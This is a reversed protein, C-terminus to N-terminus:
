LINVRVEVEMEAKVKGAALFSGSVPPIVEPHRHVAVAIHDGGVAQGSTSDFGRWGTGPLYIESWAHTTALDEVAANSVLYGSVFRSALGLYRCAEIFLTAMDRCSGKGRRLTTHPPQVGPSTRVTYRVTDAIKQNIRNLLPVTEVLDGASWVDKMWEGIVAYDQPFVSIQYPILDIQELPDYHFPYHRANAALDIPSPMEEYHQVVVRSVIELERGPESFGVIALSNGFIDRQWEISYAPQIRLSSSEIRIDHGERPRVLLKHPLFEVPEPYLYKTIHEIDIRRM